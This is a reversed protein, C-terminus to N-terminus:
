NTVTTLELLTIETVSGFRIPPGWYATGQNVYVWMDDHRKLGKVFKEVTHILLTLPFIQGGHTHGSLQLDFGHKAAHMAIKPQHALLIKVNSNTANGLAQALDPKNAPNAIVSAPDLVGAVLIEHEGHHIIKRSNLLVEMGLSKFENIWRPGDWYYEHNGTVFVVNGAPELKSLHTATPLHHDADGDVIDGTLVTLHPMLSNVKSVVKKVYRPGVSPGVHLDSIQAIRYGKLKEPLNRIPIKVTKISPGSLASWVGFSLAAFALMFTLLSSTAGFLNERLEPKFFLVPLFLLDRLVVASTLFSLMGMDMYTKWRWLTALRPLSSKRLWNLPYSLFGLFIFALVLWVPLGIGPSLRLGLYIFLGVLFM